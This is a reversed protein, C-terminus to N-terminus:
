GSDRANEALSDGSPLLLCAGGSAGAAAFGGLDLPTRSNRITGFSVRGSEQENNAVTVPLVATLRKDTKRINPKM